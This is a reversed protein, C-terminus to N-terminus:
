SSHLRWECDLPPSRPIANGPPRDQGWSQRPLQRPASHSAMQEGRYRQEELAQAVEVDRRRRGEAALLRAYLEQKTGSTSAGLEKLRARLDKVFSWAHLTPQAALERIAIERSAPSPQDAVPADREQDGRKGHM